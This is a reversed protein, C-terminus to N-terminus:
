FFSGIVKALKNAAVWSTVYVSKVVISGASSEECMKENKSQSETMAQLRTFLVHLDKLLAM